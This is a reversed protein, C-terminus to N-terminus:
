AAGSSVESRAERRVGKEQRTSPDGLAQSRPLGRVKWIGGGARAGGLPPREVDAARLARQAKIEARRPSTRHRRQIETDADRVVPSLRADKRHDDAM